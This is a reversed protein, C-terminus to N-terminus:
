WDAELVHPDGETRIRDPERALSLTIGVQDLDPSAISAMGEELDMASLVNMLVGLSVGAEGQRLRQYTQRTIGARSCITSIKLRRRVRAIEIGNGIGKMLEDSRESIYGKHANPKKNSQM